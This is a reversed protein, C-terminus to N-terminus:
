RGAHDETSRLSGAAAHTLPRAPRRCSGAPIGHVCGGATTATASPTVLKALAAVRATHGGRAMDQVEPATPPTTGFEFAMAHADNVGHVLEVVSTSM